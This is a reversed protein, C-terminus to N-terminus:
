ELDENSLLDAGDLFDEIKMMEEDSIIREDSDASESSATSSGGRLSAFAAFPNCAPEKPKDTMAKITEELSLSVHLGNMQEQMQSITNRLKSNEDSLERVTKQLEVISPEFGVKTVPQSAKRREVRRGYVSDEELKNINFFLAM